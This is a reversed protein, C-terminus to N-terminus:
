NGATATIEPEQLWVFHTFFSCFHMFNYTLHMCLYLLNIVIYLFHTFIYFFIYVHILGRCYSSMGLAQVEILIEEDDPAKAQEEIIEFNEEHPDGDPRTKLIVKKSNPLNSINSM